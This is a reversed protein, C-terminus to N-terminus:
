EKTKSSQRRRRRERKVGCGPLRSEPWDAFVGLKWPKQLIAAEFGVLVPVGFLTLLSALLLRLMQDRNATFSCTFPIKRFNMLIM